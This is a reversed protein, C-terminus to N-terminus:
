HPQHLSTTFQKNMNAVRTTKSLVDVLFHDHNPGISQASLPPSPLTFAPVCIQVRPYHMPQGPLHHLGWGWGQLHEPDMSIHDTPMTPHNLNPQHGELDQGVKTISHNQLPLLLQTVTQTGM